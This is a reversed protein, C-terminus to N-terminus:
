SQLDESIFKRLNTELSTINILTIALRVDPKIEHAFYDNVGERGQEDIMVVGCTKAKYDCHVDNLKRYPPLSCCHIQDPCCYADGLCCGYQGNKMRCCSQGTPCFVQGAFKSYAFHICFTLMFLFYFLKITKGMNFNLPKNCAVTGPSQLSQM